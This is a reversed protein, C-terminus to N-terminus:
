KEQSEPKPRAYGLAEKLSQQASELCEEIGDANPVQSGDIQEFASRASSVHLMTDTIKEREIPTM